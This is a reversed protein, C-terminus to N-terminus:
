ARRAIGYIIEVRYELEAAALRALRSRVRSVCSNRNKASLSEIRRSPLGCHTQTALLEDVTWQHAFRESWIRDPALRARRLLDGVKETTDMWKQRMVAPDRPDPIAGAQDLEEAWIPGGPLGPDEGWVVVGLAGGPRLTAGTEALARVPDPIHQLVFLLLAIDFSSARVGFQEADMVAVRGRLPDGGARLMGEARDVGYLRAGPTASRIVPWLGGTGTGVDLINRATAFPMAELLPRAMPHIIPAWHRAYDDARQSYDCALARSADM